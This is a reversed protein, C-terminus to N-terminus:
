VWRELQALVGFSPAFPKVEDAGDPDTIVIGRGVAGRLSSIEKRVNAIFYDKDTRARANLADDMEGRILLDAWEEFYEDLRVM